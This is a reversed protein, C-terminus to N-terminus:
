AALQGLTAGLARLKHESEEWERDPESDGVIGCGAFLSASRGRVVGSRIAVVFEGDGGSPSRGLGLWGVPGAYWGRDLHEQEDILDLALESPWGGVAPTPHLAEVLALLNTGERVTGSIETALHQVTRLRVVHPRPAIHLEDALPGLTERLMTVVVQHEERDKESALLEEGLRDDEADDAGRGRTGALAITRFTRGRTEVLREPTAGLFAGGDPTSIAFITASPAGAELRRLIAPVDLTEEGVLDVRRALVVKDLRGRGVAGACRAVSSAWAARNPVRASVDLRAPGPDAALRAGFRELRRVLSTVERVGDHRAAGGAVTGTLLCRDGRLELLLRPVALHGRELGRWIPDSSPRPAFTGGGLLIPGAGLGAGPGGIRAGQAVQERFGAARVFRDPGDLDMRLADGVGVFARRATPQLWLLPALGADLYAGFAAIPDVHAIPVSAAVLSAHAAPEREVLRGLEAALSDATGDPLLGAELELSRAATM